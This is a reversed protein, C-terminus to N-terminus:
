FCLFLSKFVKDKTESPCVKLYLQTITLLILIPNLLTHQIYFNHYLNSEKKLMFVIFLFFIFIDIFISVWDLEGVWDSTWQRFRYDLCWICSILVATLFLESEHVKRPGSISPIYKRILSPNFFFMNKIWMKHILTKGGGGRIWM